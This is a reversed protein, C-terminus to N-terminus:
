KKILASHYHKFYTPYHALVSKIIPIVRKDPQLALFDDVARAIRFYDIIPEPNYDGLKKVLAEIFLRMKENSPMNIGKRWDKLRNYQRDNLLEDSEGSDEIYIFTAIERWGLVTGHDALRQKIAELIASFCTYAYSNHSYIDLTTSFIGKYDDPKINGYHRNEYLAIGIEFHAIASLYFDFILHYVAGILLTANEDQQYKPNDPSAAFESYINLTEVSVLSQRQWTTQQAQWIANSDDKDIKGQKIQQKIAKMMRYDADARLQLFDLLTNLETDYTSQKFGNVLPWWVCANSSVKSAKITKLLLSFSQLKQYPIPLKQVWSTLKNISPKAIGETALNSRSSRGINLLIGSQKEIFPIVKIFNNPLQLLETVTSPAPLFVSEFKISKLVYKGDKNPKFM